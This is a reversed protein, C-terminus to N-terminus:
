KVRFTQVDRLLQGDVNIGETLVYFVGKEDSTFFEFQQANGEVRIDPNWYLTSRYDPMVKERETPRNYDPVYFQRPAFFGYMPFTRFGLPDENMPPINSGQRSYMAIVGNSGGNGYIAAKSGKLVDIYSINQPNVNSIYQADVQIGNFLFTAENSGTFTTMGRIIATQNPYVGLVQVGPIWARIVDFMNTYQVVGGPLSDMIVRQDPSKYPKVDISFPDQFPDIKDEVSIEDLIVVNDGYASQIDFLEEGRSRIGDDNLLTIPPYLKLVDPATRDFIELYTSSNAKDKKRKNENASQTKVFATLSDEVLLGDFWFRGDTNSHAEMIFDPKELFSLYLDTEIKRNRNVYGSVEGEITFGVQVFYKIEPLQGRSVQEWDFRRWGNTMMLLDIHDLRKENSIDTYYAPRHIYGTLDSTFLLYSRIDHWLPEFVSAPVVTTSLYAAPQGVAPLMNLHQKSRTSLEAEEISINVLSSEQDNKEHYILRELRANKEADFFTAHIIGEPLTLQEIATYIYTDGPRAAIVQLLVGRQHLLLFTNDFSQGNSQVTIYLKETTRRTNLTYGNEQIRPLPTSFSVGEFTYVCAYRVGIKPSLQFKGMGDHTSEFEAIVNGQDDVVQGSLNIPLGTQDTGKFAVFNVLDAVLEGGEPFLQLQLEPLREDVPNYEKQSSLRTVVKIPKQFLYHESFNRQYNTYARLQYDGAMMSDTFAFHGMARGLSDTRVPLTSVIADEPSILETYVLRSVTGPLHSKGDVLYVSFWLTDGLSFAERNTHLYVKEVPTEKQYQNFREILLESNSQACLSFCCLSIWGFLLSKNLLLLSRIVLSRM